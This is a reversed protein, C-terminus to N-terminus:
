EVHTRQYGTGFVFTFEFLSQFGDDVFDGLRISVDDQEDIFDMGQYTGSFSFTGHIGGVDQFRCQGTSFQSADTGSGEVLVLFVEFLIFRQLTTELGDHDVLRVGQTGNGNETTQLFTVLVVMLHTDLVFGDDSRYFQTVTVNGFPEQRILGDVQHVLCSGLQTHFTIRKRLFQIFDFTAQFLQFDFAFGDLALLVFGLQTLEVLFNCLQFLLFGGVLGFPLALFFQDVLDLVVLLFNFLQLEFGVLGLTFAVVSLYGFYTVALELCQFVFDLGDLFVQLM